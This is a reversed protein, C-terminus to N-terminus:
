AYKVWVLIKKLGKGGLFLWLGFALQFINFAVTLKWEPNTEFSGPWLRLALINLVLHSVLAPIAKSLAFLGILSCGVSFWSEFATTNSVPENFPPLIKKALFLPFVWLLICIISLLAISLVPATLSANLGHKNGYFYSSTITTAFYLFFWVTFLRISVAIVQYPTMDIKRVNSM